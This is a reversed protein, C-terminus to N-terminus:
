ASTKFVSVVEQLQEASTHMTAANGALEEVIGANNQTGTDVQAIARYLEDVGAAQETSSAAIEEMAQSLEQTTANITEMAGAVQSVVANGAQVKAVTTEILQKIEQSANASRQALSRVEEAVVAFGKGHEGARAAEVAANLALLNTQFAVEKVTATIERIQGAAATIADMAEAMERSRAVNQNVIDIAGAAKIRGDEASSASAKISSTMQEITAAIEEVSAAQETSCQSLSDSSARMHDTGEAVENASSRVQQVMHDLQTAMDRMAQALQGVEDEQHIDIQATLDGSAVQKVFDVSKVMDRVITKALAYSLAFGIMIVLLNVAIISYKARDIMAFIKDMQNDQIDDFFAMVEERSDNYQNFLELKRHYNMDTMGDTAICRKSLEAYRGTIELGHRVLKQAEQLHVSELIIKSTAQYNKFATDIKTVSDPNKCITYDMYAINIALADEYLKDVNILFLSTMKSVNVVEMFGITLALFMLLILGFGGLLKFKLGLNRFWQM